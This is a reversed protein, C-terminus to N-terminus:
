KNIRIDHLLRRPFTQLAHKIVTLPHRLLLLGLHWALLFYRRKFHYFRLLPWRWAYDFRHRTELYERYKKALAQEAQLNKEPAKDPAQTAHQILLTESCGIFHGGTLALKIAFDVDELRRFNVDFGGVAIFTEKSAMLACSPTGNGYCVHKKKGYFLLFDAMEHGVPHRGHTGVAYFPKIYGNDYYREGSVYCAILNADTQGKYQEIYQM